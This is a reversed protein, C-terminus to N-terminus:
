TQPNQRRDPRSGRRDITMRRPEGHYAKGNHSRRETNSRRDVRNRRRDVTSPQSDPAEAAAVAATSTKPDTYM